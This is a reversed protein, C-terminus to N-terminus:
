RPRVRRFVLLQSHRNAPNRQTREGPQPISDNRYDFRAVKRADSRPVLCWEPDDPEAEIYRRVHAEEGQLGCWCISRLVDRVLDTQWRMQGGEVQDMCKVLLWRRTLRWGERVGDAILGLVEDRNMRHNTGYDDDMRGMAPTGNLKYPPDFVVADFSRDPFPLARFDARVDAPKYLDNTTLRGPQYETWFRGEGFTMDLVHGPTGKMDADLYGLRAVDAILHANTPWDGVALVPANM